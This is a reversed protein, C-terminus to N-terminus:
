SKYRSSRKEYLWASFIYLFAFPMLLLLYNFISSVVISSSSSYHLLIQIFYESLFLVAFIKRFVVAINNIGSFKKDDPNNDEIACSFHILSQILLSVCLLWSSLNLIYENLLRLFAWNVNFVHNLVYATLKPNGTLTVNLTVLFILSVIFALPKEREFRLIVFHFLEDM